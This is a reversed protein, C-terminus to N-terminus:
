INTVQTGMKITAWLKKYITRFSPLRLKQMALRLVAISLALTFLTFGWRGMLRQVVNWVVSLINRPRRAVVRSKDTPRRPNFLTPTPQQEAVPEPVSQYGTGKQKRAYPAATIGADERAISKANNDAVCTALATSLVSQCTTSQRVQRQKRSKRRTGSTKIKKEVAVPNRLSDLRRTFEDRAPESVVTCLNLFDYASSLDNLQPLIHLMYLECVRLYSAKAMTRQQQRQASGAGDEQKLLYVTEDSLTALWAEVIDRATRADRLKLCLLVTPVLVESDVNGAYGGFAAMISDWVDRVSTPFGELKINETMDPGRKVRLRGDEEALETLSSLVCIYLIWLRCCLQRAQQEGYECTLQEINCHQVATSSHEWASSSQGLILARSAKQHLMKLHPVLSGGTKSVYHTPALQAPM